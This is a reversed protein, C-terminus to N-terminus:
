MSYTILGLHEGTNDVVKFGPLDAPHHRRGRTIVFDAAWNDTVFNLIWPRDQFTVKGLEYHTLADQEVHKSPDTM